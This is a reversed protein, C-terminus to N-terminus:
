RIVQESYVMSARGYAAAYVPKIERVVMEPAPQRDERGELILTCLEIMDQVLARSVPNDGSPHYFRQAHHGSLVTVDEPLTAWFADLRRLNERYESICACGALQMWVGIGSGVADGTFLLHKTEEYFVMSGPTHGGVDVCRVSFEGIELRQGDELSRFAAPSIEAQVGLRTLAGAFIPFDKPSIYAPDFEGAHAMHDGHGHTVLLTVPKDTLTRIFPLLPEDAMGTDILLAQEKGTLLYFSSAKGDDLRYVGPVEEIATYPM